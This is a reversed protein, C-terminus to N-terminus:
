RNVHNFCWFSFRIGQSLVFLVYRDFFTALLRRLLVKHKVGACLHCNMLQGRTIYVGSGPLTPSPSNLILGKGRRCCQRCAVFLSSRRRQDTRVSTHCPLSRARWTRSCFSLLSPLIKPFAECPRNNCDRLAKALGLYYYNRIKDTCFPLRSIFHGKKFNKKCLCM